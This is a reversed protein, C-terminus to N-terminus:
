SKRFMMAIVGEGPLNDLNEFSRFHRGMIYPEKWFPYLNGSARKLAANAEFVGNTKEGYIASRIPLGINNLISDRLLSGDYYRQWFTYGTTDPKLIGYENKSIYQEERVAKCPLTLIFHGGPKLLSWMRLLAPIENPIHELVSICTILDFSSPPYDADQILSAKLSCRSILGLDRSLSETIALDKADPNVFTGTIDPHRLLFILPFLRPSSVDLYRKAPLNLTCQSAFDLEFYRTTDMPFFALEYASSLGQQDKKRLILRIALSACGLRFGLGPTRMIYALACYYPSLFVGKLCQTYGQVRTASKPIPVDIFTKRM